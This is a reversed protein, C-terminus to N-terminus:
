AADAEILRLRRLLQSLEHVAVTLFALLSNCRSQEM